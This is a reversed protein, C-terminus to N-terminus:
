MTRVNDYKEKLTWNKHTKRNGQIIEGLHNSQLNFRKTLVQRTCTEITYTKLNIWTYETHDYNANSKPHRLKTQRMKEKVAPDMPKGYNGNLSGKRGIKARHEKTLRTGATDFGISTQKAANFFEPNVGVEFLTHLYIEHAIAEKRTKFIKLIHKRCNRKYERSVTKASSMYPDDAPLVKSSRAGIYMRNDSNNILLYTYHYM